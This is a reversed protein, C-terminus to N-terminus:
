KVGTFLVVVGPFLRKYAVDKFGANKIESSIQAPHPFAEVSDRLYEYAEKEGTGLWGLLPMVYRIYIRQLVMFRRTCVGDQISFEMIFLRGGNELVRNMQQMARERDEFNRLGYAVTVAQFSGDPLPLAEALGLIFHPRKKAQRKNQAVALMAANPDVGTVCTKKLRALRETLAGTGCAVDAITHHPTKKVERVMKRIWLRNLGLSILDNTREYRPAVSQFVRTKLDYKVSTGTRTITM